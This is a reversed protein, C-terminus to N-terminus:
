LVLMVPGRGRKQSKQLGPAQTEPLGQLFPRGFLLSGRTREGPRTRRPPRGAGRVSDLDIRPHTEGPSGELGPRGPHCFFGRRRGNEKKSRRRFAMEIKGGAQKPASPRGRDRPLPGPQLSPFLRHRKFVQIGDRSFQEVTQILLKKREPIIGGVYYPLGCGSYSIEGEEQYIVVEMNPDCRKAKAAAKPGAAVGGIIVLRKKM